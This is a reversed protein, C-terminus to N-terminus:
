ANIKSNAIRKYKGRKEPRQKIIEVQSAPIWWDRSGNPKYGIIVKQAILQRIRSASRNTQRGVEKATFEQENTKM